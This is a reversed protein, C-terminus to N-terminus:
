REKKSKPTLHLFGDEDVNHEIDPSMHGSWLQTREIIFDDISLKTSKKKKNKKGM